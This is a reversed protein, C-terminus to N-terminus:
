EGDRDRAGMKLNLTHTIIEGNGIDVSVFACHDGKRTRDTAIAAACGLGILKESSNSALKISRSGASEALASAVELSAFEKAEFGIYDVTSSSAELKLAGFAWPPDTDADRGAPWAIWLSSTM